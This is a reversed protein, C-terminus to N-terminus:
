PSVACQSPNSDGVTRRSMLRIDPAPPLTPSPSEACMQGQYFRVLAEAKRRAVIAADPATAARVRTTITLNGCRTIRFELLMRAFRHCRAALRRRRRKM